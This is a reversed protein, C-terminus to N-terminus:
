DNEEIDVLLSPDARRIEDLDENDYVWRAEEIPDAYKYAIAGDPAQTKTGNIVAFRM